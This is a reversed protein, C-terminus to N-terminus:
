WDDNTVSKCYTKSIDNVVVPDGNDSISSTNCEELDSQAEKRSSSNFKIAARRKAARERDAMLRKQRQEANENSRRNAARIMDYLRRKMKQESSEQSRRFAARVADNYKRIKTQMETERKRRQASRIKDKLRRLLRQEETEDRRRNAARVANKHKRIKKGEESENSRRSVARTGNKWLRDKYQQKKNRRQLINCSNDCNSYICPDSECSKRFHLVTIDLHATSQTTNEWTKRNASNIENKIIDATGENDSYYFEEKVHIQSAIADETKLPCYHPVADLKIGLHLHESDIFDSSIFHHSCVYRKLCPLAGGYAFDEVIKPNKCNEVWSLCLYFDHPFQFFHGTPFNESTNNCGVMSCIKDM